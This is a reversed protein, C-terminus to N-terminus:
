TEAQVNIFIDFPIPCHMKLLFQLVTNLELFCELFSMVFYMHGKTVEHM